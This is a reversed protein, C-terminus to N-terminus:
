EYAWNGRPRRLSQRVTATVPGQVSTVSLSCDRGHVNRWFRWFLCQAPEIPDIPEDVLERLRAAVEGLLLVEGLTEM